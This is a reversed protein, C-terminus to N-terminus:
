SALEAAAIRAVLKARQADLVALEAKLDATAATKQKGGKGFKPGLLGGLLSKGSKGSKGGAKGLLKGGGGAGGKAGGGRLAAGPGRKGEGRATPALASCRKAARGGSLYATRNALMLRESLRPQGCPQPAPALYMKKGCPRNDACAPGYLVGNILVGSADRCQLDIAGGSALRPQALADYASAAAQGSTLNAWQSRRWAQSLRTHAGPGGRMSAGPFCADVFWSSQFSLGQPPLPAPLDFACRSPESTLSLPVLCCPSDPHMCLDFLAVASASFPTPPLRDVSQSKHHTRACVEVSAQSGFFVLTEVAYLAYNNTIGHRQLTPGFDEAFYLRFSERLPAFFSPPETSGVYVRSMKPMWLQLTRAIADPRTQLDRTKCDEPNCAAPISVKVGNIVAETSKGALKDSRRVHMSAYPGGIALRIDRAAAKIAPSFFLGSRLIINMPKPLSPPAGVLSNLEAALTNYDTLRRACQQFWFTNVSRRVLFASNAGGCPHERAIRQSSWGAGVNAVAAGSQQAVLEKTSNVVRVPVLRSLADVDFLDTIPVCTEGKATDKAAWRETHLAFLCIKPPLLLTRRTRFAEGLACSLSAMQHNLGM